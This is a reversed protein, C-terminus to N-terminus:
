LLPGNDEALRAEDHRSKRRQREERRAAMAALHRCNQCEGEPTLYLMRRCTICRPQRDDSLRKKTGNMVTPIGRWKVM